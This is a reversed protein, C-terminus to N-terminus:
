IEAELILVLGKAPDRSIYGMKAAIGTLHGYCPLGSTGRTHM